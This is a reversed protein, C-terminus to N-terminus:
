CSRVVDHELMEALLKLLDSRCRSDDVEFEAAIHRCLDAVSVPSELLEWVRSGVENIGFYKGNAINMMVTDGDMDATILEPNRTLRSNIDLETM